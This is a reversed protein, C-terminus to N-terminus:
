RTWAMAEGVAEVAAPDVGGGGLRGLQRWRRTWTTSERDARDDGGCQHVVFAGGGGCGISTKKEAGGGGGHPGRQWRGSWRIQRRTWVVAEVATPKCYNV